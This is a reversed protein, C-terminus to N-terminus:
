IEEPTLFPKFDETDSALFGGLGEILSKLIDKVQKSDSVEYDCAYVQKVGLVSLLEMDEAEGLDPMIDEFTLTEGELAIEMINAEKWIEVAESKVDPLAKALQQAAAEVPLMLLCSKLEKQKTSVPKSGVKRNSNKHKGAM